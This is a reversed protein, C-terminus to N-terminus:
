LLRILATAAEAADAADQADKAELWVGVGLLCLGFGMVVVGIRYKQDLKDLLKNFEAIIKEIDAGVAEPGGSTVKDKSFQAMFVLALGAVAFVLGAIFFVTSM